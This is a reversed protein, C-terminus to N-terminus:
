FKERTKFPIAKEGWDRIPKGNPAVFKKPAKKRDHKVRPFVGEIMVRGAVASGKIVRVKVYRSKQSYEVSLLVAHSAKKM